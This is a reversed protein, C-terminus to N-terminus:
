TSKPFALKDQPLCCAQDLVNKFKQGAEHNKFNLIRMEPRFKASMHKSKRQLIEVGSCHRSRQHSGTTLTTANPQDDQLCGLVRPKDSRKRVHLNLTCLNVSHHHQTKGPFLVVMEIQLMIPWAHEM